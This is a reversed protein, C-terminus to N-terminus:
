FQLASGLVVQFCLLMPYSGAPPHSNSDLDVVGPQIWIHDVSVKQLFVLDSGLGLSKWFYLNTHRELVVPFRAMPLTSGEETFRSASFLSVKPM